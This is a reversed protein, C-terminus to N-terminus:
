VFLSSVSTEEHITQIAQGLLRAVSLVVIKKSNQADGRLPISVMLNGNKSVVDCLTHIVTAASKYGDRAALDADYHWNGICTDTQWPFREIYSKGGREVDDVIGM